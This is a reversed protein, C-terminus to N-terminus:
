SITNRSILHNDMWFLNKLGAIAGSPRLLCQHVNMELGAGAPRFLYLQVTMALGASAPRFLCLQVTMALGASAPRFLCLQVTMALGAGAPRLLGGLLIITVQTLTTSALLPNSRRKAGRLSRPSYSM